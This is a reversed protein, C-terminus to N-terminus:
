VNGLPTNEFTLTQTDGAAVDVTQAPADKAYGPITEIETVTYSGPQLHNIRIEGSANTTYVGNNPVLAGGTTTVKFAVGQLPDKTAKDVKRIVLNGMPPNYIDLTYTGNDKIVVNHLSDDILYGDKTSVQTM